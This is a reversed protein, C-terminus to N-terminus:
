EGGDEDLPLGTLTLAVAPSSSNSARAITAVMDSVQFSVPTSEAESWTSLSVMDVGDMSNLQAIRLGVAARQFASADVHKPLVGRSVSKVVRLWNM